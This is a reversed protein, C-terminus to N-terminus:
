ISESDCSEWMLEPHYRHILACLAMGDSWSKSLDIVRIGHGKVQQQCWRLLVGPDKLTRTELYEFQCIM